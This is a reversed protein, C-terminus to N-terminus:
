DEIQFIQSAISDMNIPARRDSEPVLTPKGNPKVIYDKGIEALKNRGVLKELEGLSLLQPEKLFEEDSYGEKRLREILGRPNNVTRNTRGQVLKFGPIQIGSMALKYANAEVDKLWADYLPAIQLILSLKELGMQKAIVQRKEEDMLDTVEGEFVNKAELFRQDARAECTGKIPCFRCQEEGPNLEGEGKLALEARPLVYNEFWDKLELRSTEWTSYNELRPQVICIRVKDVNNLGLTNIAGNAYIMLQPNEEAKVMVGKGFKLDVITLRDEFVIITDSTGQDQEIGTFIKQEFFIQKYGEAQDKVFEVYEDVYDEFLQTYYESKAKFEEYEKQYEEESIKGFEHKLKLEGLSHADTGEKAYISSERECDEGLKASPTCLLWRKSSSPSLLAHQGM